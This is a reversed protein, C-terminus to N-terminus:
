IYQRTKCICVHVGPSFRVCTILSFRKETAGHALRQLLRTLSCLAAVFFNFAAISYTLLGYNVCCQPLCHISRAGVLSPRRLNGHQSTTRLTQLATTPSGFRVLTFHNAGRGGTAGDFGISTKKMADEGNLPGANNM